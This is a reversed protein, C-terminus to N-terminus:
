PSRQALRLMGAACLAGFTGTSLIMAFFRWSLSFPGEIIFDLTVLFVQLSMASLAGWIAFRRVSLEPVTHKREAGFLILAFFAGVVAAWITWGTAVRAIIPLAPPRQPLAGPGMILDYPPTQFYWLVGGAISLPIWLGAWILATVIVAKLRRLLM